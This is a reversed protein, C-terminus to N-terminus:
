TPLFHVDKDGDSAGGARGQAAGCSRGCGGEGLRLRAPLDPLGSARAHAPVSRLPRTRVAAGTPPARLDYPEQCVCTLAEDVFPFSSFSFSVKMLARLRKQRWFGNFPIFSSFFGKM